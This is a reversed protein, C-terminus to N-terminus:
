HRDYKVDRWVKEVLGKADLDDGSIIWEAISQAVNPYRIPANCCSALWANVACTDLSSMVHAREMQKLICANSYQEIQGKLPKTLLKKGLLLAESCLGFGTNCIIGSCRKLDEPFSTRCLPRVEVRGEQMSEAVEAYVKFRHEPMLKLWNVVTQTSEFPLYVLVFDDDPKAAEHTQDDVLSLLPPLIPQDFAQWHVGLYRDLPTFLDIARKLWFAKQTGPLPYRLAYQHALGLSPVGQRRAAWASVPEFDNLLLDYGTLDLNKVDSRFQLVSAQQFTKWRDIRGEQTMFTFGEAYQYDGFCQMDFLRDQPRGSFLFDVEIGVAKLAPLMARARTIHGNGTAQVAYLLKM